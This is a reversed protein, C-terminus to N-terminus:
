AQAGTAGQAGADETTNAAAAALLQIAIRRADIRYTGDNVSARLEAVLGDRVEPTDHAAQLSRALLRAEDSLAVSDTRRTRNAGGAGRAPPSAGDAAAAGALNRRYVGSADQPRISQVM